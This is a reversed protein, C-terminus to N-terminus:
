PKELVILPRAAKGEALRSYGDSVWSTKLDATSILQLGPPPQNPNKLVFRDQEKNYGVVLLTHGFKLEKGDRHRIVTFDIVVPQGADLHKRIFATGEDFGQDDNAFEVMKWPQKLKKCVALLDEWDTGTGIPDAPCLRKVDYPTIEAGAKRAFMAISTAGCNNWGQYLHDVEVYALAGPVPDRYRWSQFELLTKAGENGQDAALAWWKRADDRKGQSQLLEGLLLLGDAHGEEAIQECLQEAKKRDQSLGEGAAYLTAMRWIANQHGQEAAKQWCAIAQEYNQEVGQGSFYCNGLNFQGQALNQEAAAKFYAAAINWDVPVGYGKLYMYGVNDQGDADGQDAAQRFCKLAQPYDQSVDDGERYRLGLQVQAQPNGQEALITLENIQTPLEQSMAVKEFAIAAIVSAALIVPFPM